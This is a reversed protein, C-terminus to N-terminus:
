AEGIEELAATAAGADGKILLRKIRSTAGAVLTVDRPAVRLRRALLRILADNAEGDTPAAAVRAKLVTSGDPLQAVGDISDRGGKPTLRVTVVLGDASIAWPWRADGKGTAMPGIQGLMM